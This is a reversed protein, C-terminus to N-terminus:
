PAEPQSIRRSRKSASLFLLPRRLSRFVLRGLQVIGERPDVGSLPTDKEFGVKVSPEAGVDGPGLHKCDAWGGAAKCDAWGGAARHVDFEGGLVRYVDRSVGYQSPTSLGLEQVSSTPHYFPTV